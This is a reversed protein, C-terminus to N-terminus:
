LQSFVSEAAAAAPSLSASPSSTKSCAVQRRCNRQRKVDVFELVNFGLQRREDSEVFNIGYANDGHGQV